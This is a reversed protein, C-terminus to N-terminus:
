ADNPDKTTPNEQKVHAPLLQYLWHYRSSPLSIAGRLSQSAADFSGARVQYAVFTREPLCLSQEWEPSSWIAAEIVANSERDCIVVLYATKQQLARWSAGAWRYAPLVDSVKRTGSTVITRRVDSEGPQKDWRVRLRVKASAEGEGVYVTGVCGCRLGQETEIVHDGPQLSSLYEQIQLHTLPTTSNSIM